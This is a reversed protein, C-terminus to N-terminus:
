KNGYYEIYNNETEMLKICHLEIDLVKILPELQDWIGIALNETSALKGKMFDVDININRHDIKSIINEKIIKSLLKINVVFGTEPNIEGKVTVFLNYNHGHWNPNSCNGFTDLNKQDDWNDRFLRHAASFHERRTILIM